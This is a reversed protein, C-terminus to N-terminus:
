EKGKKKSVLNKYHLAMFKATGIDSGYLGFTEIEKKFTKIVIDHPVLYVSVRGESDYAPNGTEEEDEDLEMEVACHLLEHYVLREKGTESLENWLEEYVCIEFDVGYLDRERNAVKRAQAAIENGDDDYIPKNRFTFIFRANNIVFEFDDVYKEVVKDFTKKIVEKNDMQLKM